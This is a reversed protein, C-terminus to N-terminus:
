VRIVMVQSTQSGNKTNAWHTTEKKDAGNSEISTPTSGRSAKIGTPTTSGSINNESNLVNPITRLSGGNGAKDCFPPAWGIDCHCEGFQNCVGHGSCDCMKPVIPVDVCKQNVCQKNDGCKAGNPVM